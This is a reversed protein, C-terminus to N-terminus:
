RSLLLSLPPATSGKVLGEDIFNLLSGSDVLICLKRRKFHGMLTMSSGADVQSSMSCLTLKAMDEELTEENGLKPEGSEEVEESEIM